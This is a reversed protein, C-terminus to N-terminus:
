PLLDTSGDNKELEDLMADITSHLKTLELLVRDIKGDHRRWWARYAEPGEYLEPPQAARAARVLEILLRLRWEWDYLLESDM